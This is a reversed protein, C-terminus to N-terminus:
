GSPPIGANMTRDRRACRGERDASLWADVLWADALWADVLWADLAGADFSTPRGAPAGGGAGAAGTAITEAASRATTRQPPEGIAVL